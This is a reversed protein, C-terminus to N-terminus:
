KLNNLYSGLIAALIMGLVVWGWQIPKSKARKWRINETQPAQIPPNKPTTDSLDPTPPFPANRDAPNKQLYNIVLAKYPEPIQTVLEPIEDNLIRKQLNKNSLQPSKKGFPLQGTWIWYILVGVSWYDSRIDVTEPARIQEPSLYEHNKHFALPLSQRYGYHTFCPAYGTETKKVLIHAASLHQYVCGQAHLYGLTELVEGIFSVKQAYTWDQAPNQYDLSGLEAYEMLLSYSIQGNQANKELSLYQLLNPHQWTSANQYAEAWLEWGSFTELLTSEKLVWVKEPTQRDPVTYIDQQNSLLVRREPVCLESLPVTQM